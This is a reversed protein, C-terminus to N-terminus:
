HEEPKRDLLKNAIELVGFSTVKLQTVETGQASVRAAADHQLYMLDHVLGGSSSLDTWLFGIRVLDTQTKNSKFLILM